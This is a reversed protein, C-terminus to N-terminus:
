AMGPGKEFAYRARLEEYTIERGCPVMAARRTGPEIGPVKFNCILTGFRDIHWHKNGHGAPCNPLWTPHIRENEHGCGSCNLVFKGLLTKRIAWTTSGCNKCPSVRQRAIREAQEVKSRENRDEWERRAREREQRENETALGAQLREQEQRELEALYVEAIRAAEAKQQMAEM